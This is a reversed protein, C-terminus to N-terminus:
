ADDRVERPEPVDLWVSGGAIRVGIPALRARRPNIGLGSAADYTWEHARCVLSCGDFRGESLRVRQHPCADEYAVICGAVNLVVVRRGDVELGIMEGDWLDERAMVRRWSM